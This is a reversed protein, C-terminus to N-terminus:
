HIRPDPACSSCHDPPVYRGEPPACPVRCSFARPRVGDLRRCRRRSGLCRACAGIARSNWPLDSACLCVRLPLPSVRGRRV